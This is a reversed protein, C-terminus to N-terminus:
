TRKRLLLSRIVRVGAHVVDWVRALADSVPKTVWDEGNITFVLGERGDLSGGDSLALDGAVDLILDGTEVEAFTRVAFKAIDPFHILGVISETREIPTGERSATVASERYLLAAVEAPVSPPVSDTLYVRPATAYREGIATMTVGSLTGDDALVALGRAGFGEGYTAGGDVSVSLLVTEPSIELDLTGAIWECEATLYSGGDTLATIEYTAFRTRSALSRVRITRGVALGLEGDTLAAAIGDGNRDTKSISITFTDNDIVLKGPAFGAGAGNYLWAGGFCVTPGVSYGAGPSVVDVFSVASWEQWTLGVPTGDNAMTLAVNNLVDALHM